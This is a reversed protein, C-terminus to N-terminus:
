VVSKRDLTHGRDSKYLGKREGTNSDVGLLYIPETNPELYKSIDFEEHIKGEKEVDPKKRIREFLGM